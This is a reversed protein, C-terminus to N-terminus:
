AEPVFRCLHRASRTPDASQAQALLRRAGAENEAPSVGAAHLKRELTEWDRATKAM